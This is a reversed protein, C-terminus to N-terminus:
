ANPQGRQIPLAALSKDGTTRFQNDHCEMVARLTSVFGDTVASWTM